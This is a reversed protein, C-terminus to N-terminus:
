IGWASVEIPVPPEQNGDLVPRDGLPEDLEITVEVPPSGPCTQYKGDERPPPLAVAVDVVIADARQDVEPGLLREEAPPAEGACALEAVWLVFSTASPDLPTAPDIGVVVEGPGQPAADDGGEDACAGAVAVLLAIALATATSARRRGM